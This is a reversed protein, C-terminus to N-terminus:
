RPSPAPAEPGSVGGDRWWRGPARVEPYGEPPSERRAPDLLHHDSSILVAGASAALAAFKRDEEDSVEPFADPALAPEVRDGERFVGEFGAWDLPPIKRVIRETEARTADSWVM